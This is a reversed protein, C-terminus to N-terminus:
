FKGRARERLAQHMIHSNTWTMLRSSCSICIKIKIIKMCVYVVRWGCKSRGAECFWVNYYQWLLAQNASTTREERQGTWHPAPHVLSLNQCQAWAMTMFYWGLVCLSMLLSSAGSQDSSLSSVVHPTGRAQVHTNYTALAAVGGERRTDHLPFLGLAFQSQVHM